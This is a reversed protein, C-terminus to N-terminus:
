EDGKSGTRGAQEVPDEVRQDIDLDGTILRAGRTWTLYAWAWESIVLFRNRFGILFFIHVCLWMLWAALGSLHLKGIQAVAAARGITAMIGKDRYRFPESPKGDLSRLIARAAYRGQQIAAPAIGPVPEGDQEIHALDGIVHVEEHGPITLRSTVEVRGAKDLSAGLSRALESARVGAAWLITRARIEGDDLVVRGAHIDRVRCGTRVDVGLRELQRRASESLDPEYPPLVRPEAEILIVHADTPDIRRFDRKLTHRAIESISGALEVGTPGGGVIVFTLCERQALSDTEREAAEYALLMRRRIDLADEITKLGPAHRAWQDSGFYSHTVGTAIILRDYELEGDRLRVIRREPDVSIAEGLVVRVNKQKRFIARIPVAIDSPNLAATAVQYLLPQFTHHNKRDVITVNVNRRGLGKAAYLGGFGAGIIVVRTM